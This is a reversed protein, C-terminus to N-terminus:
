WLQFYKMKKLETFTLLFVILVIFLMFKYFMASIIIFLFIWTFYRNKATKIDPYNGLGCNISIILTFITAALSKFFFSLLLIVAVGKLWLWFTLASVIFILWTGIPLFMSLYITLKTTPLSFLIKLSEENQNLRNLAVVNYLLLYIILFGLLVNLIDVRNTNNMALFYAITFFSFTLGSSALKSNSRM